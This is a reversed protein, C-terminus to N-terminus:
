TQSIQNIFDTTQNIGGLPFFHISAVNTENNDIVHEAIESLIADPSYPLLLKSLDKARKEIVKISPGVGCLIAFKIMTQLKAPGAIGLNIPFNIGNSRLHYEWDIIPRSEFCFQTTLSAKVDSRESFTKKWNLANMIIQDKGDPDIDKNGEPHGAFCLNRFNHKDFLGTALLEMSNSFEGISAKVGGALILGHDIGIDAYSKLWLALESENKILRAPFHPVPVMGEERLRKATELMSQILTGELHAIYVQSGKPLIDSFNVIKKATKPMVEISFNELLKQVKEKPKSKNFDDSKKRYFKLDM